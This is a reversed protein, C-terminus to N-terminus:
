ENILKSKKLSPGIVWRFLGQRIEIKEPAIPFNINQGNMLLSTITIKTGDNLTLIAHNYEDVPEIYLRRYGRATPISKFYTVARIENLSFERIEDGHKFIFRNDTSNWRLIDRKNVLYYDIHVLIAPLCFLFFLFACLLYMDKPEIYHTELDLIVAGVCIALYTILLHANNSESEFSIKYEKYM